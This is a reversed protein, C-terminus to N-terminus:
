QIFVLTFWVASGFVLPRYLPFLIPVAQTVHPTSQQFRPSIETNASYYAPCTGLELVPRLGTQAQLGPVKRLGRGYDSGNKECSTYRDVSFSGELQFNM